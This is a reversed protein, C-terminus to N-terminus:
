GPLPDLLLQESMGALELVRLVISSANRVCISGDDRTRKLALALVRLGTSDLFSVDQMDFTVHPSAALAEDVLANFATASDADIEGRLRVLASGDQHQLDGAFDSM